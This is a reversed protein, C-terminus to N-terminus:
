PHLVSNTINYKGSLYLEVSFADNSSLAPTYVLTEAVWGRYATSTFPLLDGILFGNLNTNAFNGTKALVGNTRMLSSNSNGLFQQITWVNLPMPNEYIIGTGSNWFGGNAVSTFNGIVGFASEAWLAGQVDNNTCNFVMFVQYPQAILRGAGGIGSAKIGSVWAGGTLLLAPKGNVQNTYYKPSSGGDTFATGDFTNTAQNTWRLVVGGNTSPITSSPDSYTQVDAEYWILLNTTPFTNGGSSLSTAFFPQDHSFSGFGQSFLCIPILLAALALLRKM